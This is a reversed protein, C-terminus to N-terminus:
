KNRFMNGMMPGLFDKMMEGFNDAKILAIVQVTNGTQCTVLALKDGASIKAKERVDKPLVMQGREDVSVFAEVNCCGMPKGDPSYCSKDKTKNKAM